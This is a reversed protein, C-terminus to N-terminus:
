EASSNPTAIWVVQFVTQLGLRTRFQLRLLKKFNSWFRILGSKYAVVEVDVDVGGRKGAESGRNGNVAKNLIDSYM